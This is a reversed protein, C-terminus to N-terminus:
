MNLAQKYRDVTSPYSIVSLRELSLIATEVFYGSQTNRKKLEQLAKEYVLHRKFFTLAGKRAEPSIDEAIQDACLEIKRCSFGNALTAFLAAGAMQFTFPYEPIFMHLASCALITVIVAISLKRVNDNQRAHGAIEHALIFHLEDDSLMLRCKEHLAVFKELDISDCKKVAKSLQEPHEPYRHIHSEYAEIFPQNDKRKREAVGQLLHIGLSISAKSTKGFFTVTHGKDVSLEITCPDVSSYRCVSEVIGRMNDLAKKQLGTLSVYSIPGDDFNPSLVSRAQRCLNWTHIGIILPCM